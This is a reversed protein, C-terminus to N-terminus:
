SKKKKSYVNDKSTELGHTHTHTHTHSLSLATLPSVCCAAVGIEEM